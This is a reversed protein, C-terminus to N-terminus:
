RCVVKRRYFSDGCRAGWGLKSADSEIVLDPDCGFIARGKWAEMHDLWWRMERRVEETLPVQDAYQLGRRLHSAKLRQLARYHLPGPFIAQISSSLLGVIRAVQRLSTTSRALTRRLERRIKVIKRPPLSLTRAVSDITFGLFIVQQSPILLSKKSNIVFGLHQLLDSAERLRAKLSTPCQDLLLIDDLYM